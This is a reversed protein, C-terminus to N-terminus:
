RPAGVPVQPPVASPRSASTTNAGEANPAAPPAGPAPEERSGCGAGFSLALLAAILAARGGTAAARQRYRPEM